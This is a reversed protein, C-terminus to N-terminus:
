RRRQERTCRLRPFAVPVHRVPESAQTPAARQRILDAIEALYAPSPLRILPRGLDPHARSVKASPVDGQVADNALAVFNATVPFASDISPAQTNFRKLEPPTSPSASDPLGGSETSTAPKVTKVM